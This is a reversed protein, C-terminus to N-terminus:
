RAAYILEALARPEIGTLPHWTGNLDQRAIVTSSGMPGNTEAIQLLRQWHTTGVDRRRWLKHSLTDFAAIKIVFGQLLNKDLEGWTGTGRM